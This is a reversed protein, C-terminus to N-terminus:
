SGKVRAAIREAHETLEARVSERMDDYYDGEARFDDESAYSSQGLYETVELGEWSGTVAISCWAWPNGAELDAEIQVACAEDGADDGSAMCNGRIAMDEPECIVSFEIESIDM